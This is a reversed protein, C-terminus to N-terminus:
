ARPGWSPGWRRAREGPGPTPLCGAAGPPRSRGWVSPAAGPEWSLRMSPPVCSAPCFACTCRDTCRTESGTSGSTSLLLALDPHLLHRPGTWPEEGLVEVPTRGEIGAADAGLFVSGIQKNSFTYRYARDVHAIHAPVMETVHRTSAEAQTLIRQAEQLAANSAALARNAASLNEAYALLQESLEASRARM